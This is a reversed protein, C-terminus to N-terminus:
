EQSLHLPGTTDPESATRSFSIDFSVSILCTPAIQRDHPWRCPLIVSSPIVRLNGGTSHSDAFRTSTECRAVANSSISLRVVHRDQIHRLCALLNVIRILSIESCTAARMLSSNLRFLDSFVGIAWGGLASSKSCRCDLRFLTLCSSTSARERRPRYPKKTHHSDPKSAGRCALPM